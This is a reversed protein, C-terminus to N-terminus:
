ESHGNERGIGDPRLLEETFMPDPDPADLLRGFLYYDTFIVSFLERFDDRNRTIIPADDVFIEGSDPIYLGTLM